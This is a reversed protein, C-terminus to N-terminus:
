SPRQPRGWNFRYNQVESRFFVMSEEFTFLPRGIAAEVKATDLCANPPHKVRGKSDSLKTAVALEGDCEFYEAVTRGMSHPTVCGQSAVNYTGRADMAVLELLIESAQNVYTPSVKQDDFLEVKRDALMEELMRSVPNPRGAVLDLGWLMSMRALLYDPCFERVAQEGAVMSEGYTNVPNPEDDETYPGEKTGDFVYSSSVYALKGTDGLSKAVNRVGVSNVAFAAERDAECAEADALGGCYIVARPRMGKVIAHVQQYDTVDLSLEEVGQLDFRNKKYTAFTRWQDRAAASVRAGLLGSGGVILIAETLFGGSVCCQGVPWAEAPCQPLPSIFTDGVCAPIVM